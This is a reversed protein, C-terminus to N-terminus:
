GAVPAISRVWDYFAGAATNNRARETIYVSYGRSGAVRRPHAIKLHGAELHYDLLYRWGIGLGLGDMIAQLYVMFSTYHHSFRLPFNDPVEAALWAAWDGRHEPTALGLLPQELLEDLSLAMTDPYDKGSVVIMEEPFLQFSRVGRAQPRGFEFVLDCARPDFSANQDRTVLEVQYDPYRREFDALRSMLFCSALGITASVVVTSKQKRALIFGISEDIQALGLTVAHYLAEGDATLTLRPKTREFLRTSLASELEIVQRSVAPQLVGLEDAARTFSRHRGAAEFVRLNNLAIAPKM